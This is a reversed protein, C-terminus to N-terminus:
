DERISYTKWENLQRETSELQQQYFRTQEKPNEFLQIVYNLGRIEGGHAVAEYLSNETPKELCNNQLTFLRDRYDKCMKVALHVSEPTGKAVEKAQDMLSRILGVRAELDELQKRTVVKKTNNHNLSLQM